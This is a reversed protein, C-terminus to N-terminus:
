AEDFDALPSSNRNPKPHVPTRPDLCFAPRLM